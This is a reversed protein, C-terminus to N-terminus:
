QLRDYAFVDMYGTLHLGPRNVESASLKVDEMGDARYVIELELDEILKDLTVYDM